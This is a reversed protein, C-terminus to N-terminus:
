RKWGLASTTAQYPQADQASIRPYVRSFPNPPKSGRYSGNQQSLCNAELPSRTRLRPWSFQRRQLDSKAYVLATRRFSYRETRKPLRRSDNLTFIACGELVYFAEDM